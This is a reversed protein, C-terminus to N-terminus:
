DVVAIGGDLVVRNREYSKCRFVWGDEEQWLEIVLAEGPYAIGAYRTSICRLRSPEGACAIKVILFAVAGLSCLGHLIPREFGAGQAVVPDVHLLNDDGSLRYILAQAKTTNWMEHFDPQRDPIHEVARAPPAAGGFGGNGRALARASLRSLLKGSVADTLSREWHILAGKERGRDFVNTVRVQSTVTGATPLEHFIELEHSLAVLQQGDIGNGPEWMWATPSALATAFTPLSLLGNEYVFRLHLPDAPESGVGIGLAYLITDRQTYSQTTPPFQRLALQAISM